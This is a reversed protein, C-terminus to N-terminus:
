CQVESSENFPIFYIKDKHACFSSDCGGRQYHAEPFVSKVALHSREGKEEELAYVAKDKIFSGFYVIENKRVTADKM